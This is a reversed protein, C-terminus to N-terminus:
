RNRREKPLLNEYEWREVEVTEWKRGCFPCVRRRVVVGDDRDRVDYVKSKAFGCKSCTRVQM